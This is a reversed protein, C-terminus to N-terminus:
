SSIYWHQHERIRGRQERKKETKQDTQCPAQPTIEGPKPGNNQRPQTLSFAWPLWATGAVLPQKNLCSPLVGRTRSLKVLDLIDGNYKVGRRIPIKLIRNTKPIRTFCSHVYHTVRRPSHASTSPYLKLLVDTLNPSINTHHSMAAHLEAHPPQLPQSLALCLRVRSSLRFMSGAVDETQDWSHTHTM